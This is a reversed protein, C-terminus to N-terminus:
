CWLPIRSVLMIGEASGDRDRQSNGYRAGSTGQSM